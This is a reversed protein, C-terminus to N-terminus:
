QKNLRKNLRLDFFVDFSRTVPSNGVCLALLASFTEMQHRWWIPTAAYWIEPLHRVGKIYVVHAFPRKTNKFYRESTLINISANMTIVDYFNKKKRTVPWKHPSNVAGIFALSASSQLKRQDAGSYITSYVKAISTIQSAMAGLIVESYHSM